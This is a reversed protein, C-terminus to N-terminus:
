SPLRLVLPTCGSYHPATFLIDLVELNSNLVCLHGIYKNNNPDCVLGRRGRGRRTQGRTNLTGRGRGGRKKSPKKAEHRAHRERLLPVKYALQLVSFEVKCAEKVAGAGPQLKEHM